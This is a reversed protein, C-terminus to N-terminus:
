SGILGDNLDAEEKEVLLAIKKEILETYIASGLRLYIKLFNCHLNKHLEKNNALIFLSTPRIENTLLDENSILEVEVPDDGQGIRRLCGYIVSTDRLTGEPVYGGREIRAYTMTVRRANIIRQILNNVEENQGIAEPLATIMDKMFDCQVDDPTAKETTVFRSGNTIDSLYQYAEEVETIDEQNGKAKAEIMAAQYAKELEVSNFDTRLNLFECNSLYQESKVHAKKYIKGDKTGLAIVAAFLAEFFQNAEPSYGSLGLGEYVLRWAIVCAKISWEYMKPNKLTGAAKSYAFEATAFTLASCVGYGIGVNFRYHTAVLAAGKVYDKIPILKAIGVKNGEKDTVEELKTFDKKGFKDKYSMFGAFPIDKGYCFYYGAMGMLSDNMQRVESETVNYHKLNIAGIGDGDSDGENSKAWTLADVLIHFMPAQNSFRVRCGTLFPMPTRNIAILDGEEVDLLKALPCKPNLVVVPIGDNSHVIPSFTTRVKCTIVRGARAIKKMVGASDVMKNTWTTLGRAIKEVMSYITSDYRNTNENGEDTIFAFLAVIDSAIGIGAGGSFAALTEVADPKIFVSNVKDGEENSTKTQLVFGDPYHEALASFVDRDTRYGGMKRLKQKVLEPNAKMEEKTMNLKSQLYKQRSIKQTLQLYRSSYFMDLEYKTVNGLLERLKQRVELNSIKLVEADEPYEYISGMMEVLSFTARRRPRSEEVLTEALRPLQISSAAVQELTLTSNGIAERATSVEVDFFLDGYIAYVKENIIVHDEYGKDTVTVDDGKFIDTNEKLEEYVSRAMSIRIWEEKYVTKAWETFANAPEKFDVVRGDNLVVTADKKYVGGGQAIVFMHILAPFGKTAENNLLVDWPQSLGKVPLYVTTAKIGLGRAKIEIDEAVMVTEVIVDFTDAYTSNVHLDDVIRCGVVKLEQAATDNTKLIYKGDFLSLVIEGPQIVVEQDVMEKVKLKIAEKLADMLDLGSEKLANRVESPVRLSSVTFKLTKPVYYEFTVGENVRVVGSGDVVFRSNTWVARKRIGGMKALSGDLLEIMFPSYERHPSEARLYKSNQPPRNYQKGIKSMDSISTICLEGNKNPHIGLMMASFGNDVTLWAINYKDPAALLGQEFLSELDEPQQKGNMLTVFPFVNHHGNNVYSVSLCLNDLIVKTVDDKAMTAGYNEDRKWLSSVGNVKANMQTSPSNLIDVALVFLTVKSDLVKDNMYVKANAYREVQRANLVSKNNFDFRAYFNAQSGAIDIVGKQTGVNRFSGLTKSCTIRLLNVFDEAELPELQALIENHYWHAFSSYVKGNIESNWAKTSIENSGITYPIWTKTKLDFYRTFLNCNKFMIKKYIPSLSQIVANRQKATSPLNIIFDGKPFQFNIKEFIELVHGKAENYRTLYTKCNKKVEGTEKDFWGPKVPYFLDLIEQASMTKVETTSNLSIDGEVSEEPAEGITSSTNSQKQLSSQSNFDIGLAQWLELAFEYHDSQIYDLYESWLLEFGEETIDVVGDVNENSALSGDILLFDYHCLGNFYEQNESGETLSFISLQEGFPYYLSWDITGNLVEESESLFVNLGEEDLTLGKSDLYYFVLSPNLIYLEKFTPKNIGVSNGYVNNLRKILASYFLERVTQQMSNTSM